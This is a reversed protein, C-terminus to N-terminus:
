KAWLLEVYFNIFTEYNVDQYLDIYIRVALINTNFNNVNPTWVFEVKQPFSPDNHYSFGDSVMWDHSDIYEILEVWSTKLKEQPMDNTM